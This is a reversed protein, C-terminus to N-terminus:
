RTDRVRALLQLAGAVAILVAFLILGALVADGVTNGAVFQNPLGHKWVQPGGRLATLGYFSAITIAFAFQGLVALLFWFSTPAKSGTTAASNTEIRRNIVATSM